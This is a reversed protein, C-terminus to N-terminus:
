ARKKKLVFVAIVLLMAGLSSLGVANAVWTYDPPPNGKYWIRDAYQALLEASKEASLLEEGFVTKNDTWWENPDEFVVTKLSHCDLFANSGIVSVGSGVTVAYVNLCKRFASESILTVSEPIDVTLLGYCGIFAWDNIKEIGDPIVLDTLMEGNLYLYNGYYLPNSFFNEFTIGCWAALDTINIKDLKASSFASEGIFEVKSGIAVEKLMYCDGFASKGIETVGSGGTVKGLAICNYFAFEGIYTVADPINISDLAFCKKFAEDGIETVGDPLTISVLSSCNGFAEKGVGTVGDGLTIKKLQSCNKFAGRMLKGGTVTIETLNKPFYFRYWTGGGETESYYRFQDVEIEDDRDQSTGFVYGLPDYSPNGYEDFYIRGAFPLTMKELSSCGSFAGSGISTVSDPVIMETLESCDGFAGEGIETVTDPISIDTIACKVFTRDGISKVGYPINVSTLAYCAYFAEKGIGIVTDPLLIETIEEQRSFASDAIVTTGERATYSGKMVGKTMVLANDVYLVYGNDWASMTYYIKTKDFAKEGISAVSDPVNVSKLKICEAFAYAGMSTVSDPVRIETINQMTYFAYDGINTIGNEIVVTTIYARYSRWPSKETKETFNPMEGNGSITLVGSVTNVSWSIEGGNVGIGDGGYVGADAKLDTSCLLALTVTLLIMLVAIPKFSIKNKMDFEQREKINQQHPKWKYVIM